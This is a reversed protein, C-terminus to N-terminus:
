HSTTSAAALPMPAIKKLYANLRRLEEVGLGVFRMGMGRVLLPKVKEIDYNWVVRAKVQMVDHEGLYLLLPLETDIPLSSGEIFLGGRSINTVRHARLMDRTACDVRISVSFRTDLRQPIPM